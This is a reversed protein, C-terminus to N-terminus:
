RDIAHVQYIVSCVKCRIYAVKGLLICETLKDLPEKQQNESAESKAAMQQVYSLRRLPWRTLLDSQRM